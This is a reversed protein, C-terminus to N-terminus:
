PIIQWKRVLDESFLNEDICIKSFHIILSEDSLLNKKQCPDIFIRGQSWYVKGEEKKLAKFRNSSLIVLSKVSIYFNVESATPSDATRPSKRQIFLGAPRLIVCPCRKYVISNSTEFHLTIQLCNLMMM